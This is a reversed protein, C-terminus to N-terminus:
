SKVGFILADFFTLYLQVQFFSNDTVQFITGISFFIFEMLAGM